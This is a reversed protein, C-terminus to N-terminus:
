PSAAAAAAAQALTAELMAIVRELRQALQTETAYAVSEAVPLPLHSMVLDALRGIDQTNDILELAQQRIPPMADAVRRAADRLQRDLAAIKHDDGHEVGADSVRAAYYPDVQELAELTVWRVGEVVVFPKVGESGRHFFLVVCLSGVTHLDALTPVETEVARQAFIALLAPETGLAAEIARASTPRLIDMPIVAGPYAVWNRLPLVPVTTPTPTGTASGRRSVAERLAAAVEPSLPRSGTLQELQQPAVVVQPEPPAANQAAVKDRLEAWSAFGYERAIASQADHLAFAAKALADDSMNAFAPVSARIRAFAEPDGRRHADLLDKAQSKLHDLHPRAPLQRQM